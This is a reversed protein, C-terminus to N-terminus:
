IKGIPEDVAHLYTPARPVLLRAVARKQNRKSVFRSELNMLNIAKPNWNQIPICANLSFTLYATLSLFILKFTVREM